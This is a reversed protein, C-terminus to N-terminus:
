DHEPAVMAYGVSGHERGGSGRRCTFRLLGCAKRRKEHPRRPIRARALLSLRYPKDWPLQVMLTTITMPMLM